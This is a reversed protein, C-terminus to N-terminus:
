GDGGGGAKHCLRRVAALVEATGPRAAVGVERWGPGAAAAVAPSLAAIALAERALGAREVLRRFLAATRPSFLLTLAGSQLAARAAAPLARVAEARYLTVSELSVGPPVALPRHEAGRAHLIRAHGAAAAADLAAQGDSETAQVRAFGAARAAAATRPGVAFLPTSPPLGPLAARLLSASRASTLVVADPAPQPALASTVAIPRIVLLPAAIAPFGAARAEAVTAAAEPEPRTVLLTPRASM